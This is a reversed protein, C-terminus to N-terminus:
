CGWKEFPAARKKQVEDHRKNQKESVKENKSVYSLGAFIFFEFCLIQCPTHWEKWFCHLMRHEALEPALNWSLNETWCDVDNVQHVAGHGATVRIQRIIKSRRNGQEWLLTQITWNSSESKQCPTGRQSGDRAPKCIITPVMTPCPSGVISHQGSKFKWHPHVM